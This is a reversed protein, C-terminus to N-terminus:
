DNDSDNDYNNADVDDDNDYYYYYDIENWRVMKMGDAKSKTLPQQLEGASTM